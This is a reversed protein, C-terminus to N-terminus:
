STRGAMVTVADINPGREPAIPAASTANSPAHLEAYHQRRVAIARLPGERYGFARGRGREIPDEGEVVEPGHALRFARRERWEWHQGGDRCAPGRQVHPREHRADPEVAVGLQDLAERGEVRERGPRTM